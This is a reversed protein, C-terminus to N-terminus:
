ILLNGTAQVNCKSMLLNVLFTEYEFGGTCSTVLILV